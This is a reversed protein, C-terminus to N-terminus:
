QLMCQLFAGTGHLLGDQLQEFVKSGMNAWVSQLAFPETHHLAALVITNLPEM